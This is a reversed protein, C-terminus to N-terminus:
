TSDSSPGTSPRPTDSPGPSGPPAVQAQSPSEPPAAPMDEHLRNFVDAAKLFDAVTIPPTMYAAPAGQISAGIALLDGDEPLDHADTEISAIENFQETTGDCFDITGHGKESRAIELITGFGYFPLLADLLEEMEERTADSRLRYTKAM